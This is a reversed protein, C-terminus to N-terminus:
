LIHNYMNKPAELALELGRYNIHISNLYDYAKAVDEIFKGTPFFFEIGLCDNVKIWDEDKGDIDIELIKFLTCIEESSMDSVPRLYPRIFEVPVGYEENEYGRLMGFRGECPYSYLIHPEKSIDEITKGQHKLFFELKEKYPEEDPLWKLYEKFDIAVKTDYPLLDLLVINLLSKEKEEM